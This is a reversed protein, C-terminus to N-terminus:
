EGSEVFENTYLQEVNLEGADDLLGSARMFDLSDQWAQDRSFGPQDTRWLEISADLVQRQVPADEDTMEPISRRALDFAEDTNALTYELGRLSAKVMKRVLDPDEAILKDGVILGNSVLDIYDSVELL